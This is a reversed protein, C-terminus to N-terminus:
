GDDDTVVKIEKVWAGKIGKVSTAAKKLGTQVADELSKKSSANLEIVKAVSMPHDGTNFGTTPGARMVPGPTWPLGAVTLFNCGAGVIVAHVRGRVQDENARRAGSFAADAAVEGPLVAQAQDVGVLRDLLAGAGADGGDELGLA